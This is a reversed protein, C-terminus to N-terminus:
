WGKLLANRAADASKPLDFWYERLLPAIQTEVVDTFWHTTMGKEIASDPTVYSHGIRFQPGLRPDAAITANLAQIRKEIEDLHEAEVGRRATMWEKWRKGLRPELDAFAFRRRLALDVLALSRDAVNMTGIVHLNEPVHVREGAFRRYSLELAETPGRKSAEILTLLEGFIQAPNGRNIEEIVLVFDIKPAAAAATIAELFIGDVLGLKGDGVPRWGRVFDEYSLTPHFQVSRVCRDDKRGVLAFGLRRALWSKGTGPPGQLILNKKTRLLNLLKSLEDPELFCGENTVCELDYPKGSVLLEDEVTSLSTTLPTPSPSEVEDEDVNVPTATPDRYRWAELSLEPFSHVPYSKEEFHGRLVDILSLYDAANCRKKPGHNGIAVNLKRSIYFQSNSDLSVFSWPRSWYLGFTLNWGVIERGHAADFAAAFTARTEEQEDDALKLAAAFVDWLADIHDPERKRARPFLWSKMNNLLPIGEFSDPVPEVVELLAALKEAILKRNSDKMGRNFLGLFTFPCIDKIFGATGDAFEDKALHDLGDVEDALKMLKAVLDNRKHQFALLKDAMAEYFKTWKFRHNDTAQDGFRESWFPSNRFRDISQTGGDFAFAILEDSMWNDPVVRWITGRHTNFYWERAPDIPTWDVRLHRGDNLNETIVGTAKIAMVSVTQGKNDFPLGRKRTYSSKIAIRDGVQMSRVVDLYRDAYGNEWVGEKVFRQSYDGLDGSAGVFWTPRNGEITKSAM